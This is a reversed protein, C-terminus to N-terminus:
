EIFIIQRMIQFTGWKPVYEAVMYDEPSYVIQEVVDAGVPSLAYAIKDSMGSWKYFCDLNAEKMKDFYEDELELFYVNDSVNASKLTDIAASLEDNTTSSSIYVRYFNSTQRECKLYDEYTKTSDVDLFDAVTKSASFELCDRVVFCNKICPSVIKYLDENMNASYYFHVYSESLLKGWRGCYGAVFVNDESAGTFSYMQNEGLSDDMQDVWFTVGYKDELANNVRMCRFWASSILLYAGSAAFLILLAIGAIINIANGKKMRIEGKVEGQFSVVM